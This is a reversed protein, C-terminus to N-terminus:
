GGLLWRRLRVLAGGRATTRTTLEDVAAQVREVPDTDFVEDALRALLWETAEVADALDDYSGVRFDHTVPGRDALRMSLHLRFVDPGDSGREGLRVEITTTESPRYRYRHWRTGGAELTPPTAWGAPPEVRDDVM